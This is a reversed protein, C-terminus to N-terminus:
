NENENKDTFLNYISYPIIVCYGIVLVVPAVSVAMPNNWKGEVAAYEGGLGTAMLGYGILITLIGLGLLMWNKKTFPFEWNTQSSTSTSKRVDRTGYTKAM